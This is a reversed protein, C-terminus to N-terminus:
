GIFEWNDRWNCMLWADVAKLSSFWAKYTVAPRGKKKWKLYIM